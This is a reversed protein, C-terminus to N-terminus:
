AAWTVNLAAMVTEAVTAGTTVAGTTAVGTAVATGAGAGAGASSAAAGFGVKAAIAKCGALLKAAITAGAGMTYITIVIIAIIALVKWHKKAFNNVKTHIDDAIKVLKEDVAEIKKAINPTVAKIPALAVSRVARHISKLFNGLGALGGDHDYLEWSRAEWFQPNWTIFRPEGWMAARSM